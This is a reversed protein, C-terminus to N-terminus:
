LGKPMAINPINEDKHNARFTDIAFKQMGCTTRYADREYLLVEITNEQKDILVQKRDLKEENSENLKKITELTTKNLKTLILYLIVLAAIICLAITLAMWNFEKTIAGVISSVIVYISVILSLLSAFFKPYSLIGFIIEYASLKGDHDIDALKKFNRLDKLSNTVKLLPESLGDSLATTSEGM